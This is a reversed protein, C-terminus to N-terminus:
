QRVSNSYITLLALLLSASLPGLFVGAPGFFVIGGLVSLLVLLPHLAAGRGVLRPGLFNDVLGVALMAWILLGVASALMGNILLFAASPLLVLSTGVGPVLASLGAMAGWLIPNPVGFIALGIGSLVGQIFALTLNGRVVSNVALELKALVANDDSDGLPSLRVVLDRLKEGDRLLYFLAILFVLSSLFIQTASSFLSGINQIGWGLLEKAYGDLSTSLLAAYKDANPVYHGIPGQLYGTITQLYEKGAGSSLSVFLQKAEGIVQIGLFSLIVVVLAVAFLIAGLAAIAPWHEIHRLFRQYVPKLVVAFVAALSLPILFPKFIFFVLLAVAALATLLFYSQSRGTSM